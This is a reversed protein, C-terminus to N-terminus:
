RGPKATPSAAPAEASCVAIPRTTRAADSLARYDSAPAVGDFMHATWRAKGTLENLEIAYGEIWYSRGAEARFTMWCPEASELLMGSGWVVKLTHIGPVIEVENAANAPVPMGDVLELAGPSGMVTYAVVAVEDRAWADGEYMRARGSSTCSPLAALSLLAFLRVGHLLM